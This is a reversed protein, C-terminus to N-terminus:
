GRASEEWRHIRLLVWAWGLGAAFQAPPHFTLALVGVGATAFFVALGLLARQAVTLRGVEGATEPLQLPDPRTV